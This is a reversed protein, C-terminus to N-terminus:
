INVEDKEELCSEVFLEYGLLGQVKGTASGQLYLRIVGLEWRVFM